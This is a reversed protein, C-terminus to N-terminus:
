VSDRFLQTNRSRHLKKALMFSLIALRQNHELRIHKANVTQNVCLYQLFDYKELIEALFKRTDKGLTDDELLPTQKVLVYEGKRGEADVAYGGLAAYGNNLFETHLPIKYPNSNDKETSCFLARYGLNPTRYTLTNTRDGFKQVWLGYIFEWDFDVTNVNGIGTVMGYNWFETKSSQCYSILGEFEEMTQTQKKWGKGLNEPNKTQDGAVLVWDPHKNKLQRMEAVHFIITM